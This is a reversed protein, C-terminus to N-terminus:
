DVEVYKMTVQLLHDYDGKTAEDTYQEALQRGVEPVRKLAKSAAGLVAFANGDRGVLQVTPHDYSDLAIKEVTENSM